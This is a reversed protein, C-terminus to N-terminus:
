TIPVSLSAPVDTCIHSLADKSIVHDCSRLRMRRAKPFRTPTNMLFQRAM